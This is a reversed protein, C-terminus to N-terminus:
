CKKIYRFLTRTTGPDEISISKQYLGEMLLIALDRAKREINEETDPFRPYNILSIEVGEEQGYTYVFTEDKIGVCLGIDACYKRCIDEAIKRDGAVHIKVTFSPATKEDEIFM